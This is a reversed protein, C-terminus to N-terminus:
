VYPGGFSLFFIVIRRLHKKAVAKKHRIGFNKVVIIHAVHNVPICFGIVAMFRKSFHFLIAVNKGNNCLINVPQVLFCARGVNYLQM